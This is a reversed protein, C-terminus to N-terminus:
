VPLWFSPNPRLRAVDVDKGLGLSPHKGGPSAKEGLWGVWPPLTPSRPQPRWADDVHDEVCCVRPSRRRWPAAHARRSPLFFLFSGFVWAAGQQRTHCKVSPRRVMVTTSRRRLRSARPQEDGRLGAGAHLSGGRAGAVAPGSAQTPELALAEGQGGSTQTRGSAAAPRHLSTPRADRSQSSEFHKEVSVRSM